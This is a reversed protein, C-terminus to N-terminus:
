PRSGFASALAADLVEAPSRRADITHWPAISGLAYRYQRHVVAEDADSADDTRESVRAIVTDKPADLWLGLFDVRADRALQAIRDREEPRAFVADVVVSRGAALCTRIEAMLRDYVEANNQRAYAEPPLSTEPAVGALRKRLVDSRLWRAGPANGIHPALSGALTSKGSGSLGGVAILRPPETELFSLASALYERAETL